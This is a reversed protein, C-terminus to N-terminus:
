SVQVDIKRPLVADRKPLRVRLVGAEFSADITAGDIEDSLTFARKFARGGLGTAEAHRVGSLTLTEGDLLVEMDKESAGPMDVVLLFADKKEYIDSRPAVVPLDQKEARSETACATTCSDSGAHSLNTPSKTRAISM